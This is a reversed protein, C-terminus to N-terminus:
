TASFYKDHFGKVDKIIERYTEQKWTSLQKDQYVKDIKNQEGILMEKVMTDTDMGTALGPIRNSSITTM